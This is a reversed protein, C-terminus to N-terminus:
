KNKANTLRYSRTLRRPKPKPRSRSPPRTNVIPGNLSTGQNPLRANETLKAYAARRSNREARSASQSRIVEGIRSAREQSIEAEAKQAKILQEKSAKRERNKQNTKQKNINNGSNPNVMYPVNKKEITNQGKELTLRLVILKRMMDYHCQIAEVFLEALNSQFNAYPNPEQGSYTQQGSHTFANMGRFPYDLFGGFNRVGYKLSEIDYLRVTRDEDTAERYIRAQEDDIEKLFKTIVQNIMQYATSRKQNVMGIYSDQEKRSHLNGYQINAPILSDFEQLARPYVECLEQLMHIPIYEFPSSVLNIRDKTCVGYVSTGSILYYYRQLNRVSRNYVSFLWYNGLIVTEFKLNHLPDYFGYNEQDPLGNSQTGIHKSGVWSREQTMPSTIRKDANNCLCIATKLLLDTMENRIADEVTQIGNVSWDPTQEM